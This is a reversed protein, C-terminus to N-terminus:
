NKFHNVKYFYDVPKEEDTNSVMMGLFNNTSDKMEFFIYPETLTIKEMNFAYKMPYTDKLTIAAQRAGLVKRDSLDNAQFGEVKGEGRISLSDLKGINGDLHFNGGVLGKISKFRYYDKVYSVFPAIDLRNVTFDAKYTGRKQNYGAKAQLFGGNEFYFKLGAESIDAQNYSIYPVTFGLNTLVNIYNVTKDNFTLKGKELSANKLVYKYPESDKRVTDKNKSNIFALIDDFNFTSDKRVIVIEPKVLRLKEIELESSFLRIPNVDVTLTDFSFFTKREDAEFMKFDIINFTTTFYNIKIRNVSLKRGTYEKGHKNIYNKALPPLAILAAVLLVIITPIIIFVFIRLIRKMCM